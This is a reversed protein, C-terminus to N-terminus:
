ARDRVATSLPRGGYEVERFLATLEEVPREPYGRDVAARAVENPASTRWRGPVVLRAFARWVERFSRQGRADPARVSTGTVAGAVGSDNPPPEDAPARRRRAWAVAALALCAVAAAVAGPGGAALYGAAVVAALAVAGALFAAARRLSVAAALRRLRDAAASLLGRASWGVTRLRALSRRLREATRGVLTAAWLAVALLRERVRAAFASVPADRLMEALARLRAAVRGLSRRGGTAAAGVAARHRGLAVLGVLVGVAVIVANRVTAGYHADVVLTTVVAAIFAGIATAAVAASRRGRRWATAGVVLAAVLLVVAAPAAYRDAVSTTVTQNATEVRVTARPDAPLVVDLRGAEDTRGRERGAVSVAAGEAPGDGLTAVVTADAGPVLALSSTPELVADLVLVDVVAAADYEGRAVELNVERRGDDPVTVTATGDADTTGVVDGDVSVEADPVPRDGIRARVRVDTGPYAEDVVDIRMEGRVDIDISANDNQAAAVGVPSVGAAGTRAGGHADNDSVRVSGQGRAATEAVCDPGGEIGVRITLERVYPVEGSVTGDGDTRGIREGEFRVPVDAAPDGDIVVTVTVTAGPEPQQDLSILCRPDDDAIPQDQGPSPEILEALWRVWGGPEGDGGDGDGGNSRGGGDRGDGDSDPAATANGPGTGDVSPAPFLLAAAVLGLIAVAVFAVQRTDVARGANDSGGTVAPVEPADPPVRHNEVSSLPM